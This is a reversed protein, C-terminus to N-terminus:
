VLKKTPSNIPPLLVNLNSKKTLLMASVEAKTHAVNMVMVGQCVNGLVIAQFPQEITEAHQDIAGMIQKLDLRIYGVYKPTDVSSISRTVQFLIIEDPNMDNKSDYIICQVSDFVIVDGGKKGGLVHSAAVTRMGTDTRIRVSFSELLRTPFALGKIECVEVM